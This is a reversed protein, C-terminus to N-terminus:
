WFVLHRLKGGHQMNRYQGPSTTDKDTDGEMPSWQLAWLSDSVVIYSLDVFSLIVCNVETSGTGTNNQVQLIKILIM